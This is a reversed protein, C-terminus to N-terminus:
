YSTVRALLHGRGEKLCIYNEVMKLVPSGMSVSGLLDSFVWRFDEMCREPTHAKRVRHQTELHWTFNLYQKM